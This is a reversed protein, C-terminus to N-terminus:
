DSWGNEANEFGEPIQYERAVGNVRTSFNPLKELSNAIVLWSAVTIRTNAAGTECEIKVVEGNEVRERVQELKEKNMWGLALDRDDDLDFIGTKVETFPELYENYEIMIWLGYM